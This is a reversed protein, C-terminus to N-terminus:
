MMKVKSRRLEPSKWPMMAGSLILSMAFSHFASLGLSFFALADGWAGACPELSFHLYEFILECGVLERDCLVCSLHLM